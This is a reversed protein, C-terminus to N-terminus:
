MTPESMADIVDSITKTWGPKAWTINEVEFQSSRESM